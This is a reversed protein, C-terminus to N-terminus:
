KSSRFFWLQKDLFVFLEDLLPQITQSTEADKTIELLTELDRIVIEVVEKTTFYKPEIEKIASLKIAGELTSTPLEGNMSVKEAIDDVFGNLGEYLGETLKHFPMFDEGRVNWHLNLAKQQMVIFSALVENLKRNKM